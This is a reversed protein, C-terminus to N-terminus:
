GQQAEKTLAAITQKVIDMDRALEAKGQETLYYDGAEYFAPIKALLSDIKAGIAPTERLIILKNVDRIGEALKELRVSSRSEPQPNDREDPFILFCDGAEFLRHSTDVLPEAVWSDFAWRLFGESKQAYGYLITWYSEAPASLSFNGPIHGTCSYVTTRKGEAQRQARIEEFAAAKKRVAVIGVSLEDVRLAIAKKETIADIAASTKFTNGKSDTIKELLAFPVRDIGREDVGIYTHDSWGKTELHQMFDNLFGEWAAWYVTENELPMNNQAGAAEDFYILKNNWPVISYCIIKDGMGLEKTFTIWQDFWTYDFTFTGEATKTWKIMSPFAIPNESYTQGDWPEEVIAATIANGGLSRYKEMHTKLIAFHETSFPEVGYYEAVAFPNQWFEPAFSREDPLIQAAVEVILTLTEGAVLLQGHYSGPATHKPIAVAVWFNQLHKPAVAARTEAVLVENAEKGDAQVSQITYIQIHEKTLVATESAFDTAAADVTATTEGANVVSVQCFVLDNKWGSLFLERKNHHLVNQYTDQTYQFHTDVFTVHVGNNTKM